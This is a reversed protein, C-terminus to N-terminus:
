LFCMVIFEALVGACRWASRLARSIADPLMWHFRQTCRSSASNSAFYAAFSALFLPNVFAFFTALTDADCYCTITSLRKSMRKAEPPERPTSGLHLLLRSKANTSGLGDPRM